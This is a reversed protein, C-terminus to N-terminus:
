AIASCSFYRVYERASRQIKSSSITRLVDSPRGPSAGYPTFTDAPNRHYVTCVAFNRRGNSERIEPLSLGFISLGRPTVPM